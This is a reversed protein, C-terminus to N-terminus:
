DNSGVTLTYPVMQGDREIFFRNPVTGPHDWAELLQALFQVGQNIAATKSGHVRDTSGPIQPGFCLSAGEIKELAKVTEPSLNVTARLGRAPEPSVATVTM